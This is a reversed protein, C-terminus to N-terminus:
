RIKPAIIVEAAEHEVMAALAEPSSDLLYDVRVIRGDVDLRVKVAPAGAKTLFILAYEGPPYYMEEMVAESVRYVAYLSTAHIGEWDAIEDKRIFSGEGGVIPLVELEIGEAEAERCKPPGGLGDATTCPATTYKILSQLQGADGSAVAALVDDIERIGAQEELLSSDTPTLSAAPTAPSCAALFFAFGLFLTVAFYSRV